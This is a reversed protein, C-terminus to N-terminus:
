EWVLQVGRRVLGRDRKKEREKEFGSFFVFLNMSLGSGGGRGGGVGWNLFRFLWWQCGGFGGTYGWLGCEM